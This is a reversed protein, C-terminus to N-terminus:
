DTIREPTFRHFILTLTMPIRKKAAYWWLIDSPTKGSEPSYKKSCHGPLACSGRTASHWANDIDITTLCCFSPPPFLPTGHNEELAGAVLLAWRNVVAKELLDFRHLFSDTARFRGHQDRPGPAYEELRTVTLFSSAFPDFPMFSGEPAPFFGTEGKWSVPELAPMVRTTTTLLPHARMYLGRNLPTTAYCIGPLDSQLYEERDTTIRVESGLIDHFILKLTYEIRPSPKDTFVLIM